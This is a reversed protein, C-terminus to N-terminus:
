FRAQVISGKLDVMLTVEYHPVGDQAMVYRLTKSYGCLGSVTPGTSDSNLTPNDRLAAQISDLDSAMRRLQNRFWLEDRLTGSQPQKAVLQYVIQLQPAPQYGRTTAIATKESVPFAAIVPWGSERMDSLDTPLSDLLNTCVVANQAHSEQLGAYGQGSFDLTITTATLSAIALPAESTGDQFSLIGGPLFGATSGVHLVPDGIGAIQTLTTQPIIAPSISAITGCAAQAIQLDAVTM